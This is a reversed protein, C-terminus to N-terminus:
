EHKIACIADSAADIFYYKEDGETIVDVAWAKFYLTAGIKYPTGEFDIGKGIAVITGKEQIADSQIGGVKEEIIELQIKNHLPLFM